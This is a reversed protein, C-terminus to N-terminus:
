RRRILEILVDLEVVHQQVQGPQGVPRVAQEDAAGAPAQLVQAGRVVARQRVRIEQGRQQDRM